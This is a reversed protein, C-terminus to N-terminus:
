KDWETEVYQYWQYGECGCDLCVVKISIRGDEHFDLYDLNWTFQDHDCKTQKIPKNKKM